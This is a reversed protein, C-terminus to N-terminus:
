TPTTLVKLGGNTKEFQILEDVWVVVRLKVM